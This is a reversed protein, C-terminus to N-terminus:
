HLRAGTAPAAGPLPASGDGGSGQTRGDLVGLLGNIIATNPDTRGDAAAATKYLGNEFSAITGGLNNPDNEFYSYKNTMVVIYADLPAIWYAAVNYGAFQGGHGFMVDNIRAIGRAYQFTTATDLPSGKIWYGAEQRSQVRSTMIFNMFTMLDRASSVMGGTTWAFSPEAFSFDELVGDGNTWGGGVQQFQLLATDQPNTYPGNFYDTYGHVFSNTRFSTTTPLYTDALGLPGAILREIEAGVSNGTVREIILGLLYYNTNSYHLDSGPAFYPNTGYPNGIETGSPVTMTVPPAFTNVFKLVEDSQPDASHDWPTQGLDMVFRNMPLEPNASNGRTLGADTTVYSYLGSTHNLLMGITIKDANGANRDTLAGPLWKEVTDAASLKGEAELMVIVQGIFMKTISAIRFQMTENMATKAAGGNALDLEASGTAYYWPQYGNLQVGVIAGPINNGAAAMAGLYGDVSQALEVQLAKTVPPATASDGSIYSTDGCGGLLLLVTFLAFLGPMQPVSRMLRIM